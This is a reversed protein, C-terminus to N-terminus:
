QKNMEVAERLINEIVESFTIDKEVSLQIFMILQDKTFAELDLDITAFKQLVIGENTEKISFKDGAQIGLQEMEEETFKVCLDGTPEVIKKIM